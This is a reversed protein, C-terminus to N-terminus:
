VLVGVLVWLEPVNGLVTQGLVALYSWFRDWHVSMYLGATFLKDQQLQRVLCPPFSRHFADGRSSLNDLEQLAHESM